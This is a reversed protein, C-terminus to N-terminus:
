EDRVGFIVALREIKDMGDKEFDYVTACEFACTGNYHRVEPHLVEELFALDDTVADVEEVLEQIRKEYKKCDNEHELREEKLQEQLKLFENIVYEECTMNHKGKNLAYVKEANGSTRM